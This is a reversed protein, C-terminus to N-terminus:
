VVPVDVEADGVVVVVVPVEVVVVPPEAEAGYPWVPFQFRMKASSNVPVDTSRVLHFGFQNPAVAVVM